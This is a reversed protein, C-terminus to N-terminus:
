LIWASKVKEAPRSPSDQFKAQAPRAALEHVPVEPRLPDASLGVEEATGM